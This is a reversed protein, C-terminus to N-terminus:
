EASGVVVFGRSTYKVQRRKHVRPVSFRGKSAADRSNDGYTGLFLHEPRVCPPNDCRHCVLLGRPVPGYHLEWSYRHALMDGIQGYGAALHAGTWQWCGDEVQSIKAWFHAEAPRKRNSRM